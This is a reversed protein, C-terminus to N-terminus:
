GLEFYASVLTFLTCGGSDARQLRFHTDAQGPAGEGAEVEHIPRAIEHSWRGQAAM